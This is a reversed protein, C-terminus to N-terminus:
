PKESEIWRSFATLLSELQKKISLDILQGNADFLHAAERVYLGVRPLVVSEAAYLTQRLAAQALRTGWRGASAGIVAVPKGALVEEPGPRSLWDIANKLVGPISQNYEPTAILLGDAEAVQRRFRIIADPGFGNAAHELDENFLPISAMEEYLRIPLEPPALQIAAELLLRNYSGARISGPIALIM